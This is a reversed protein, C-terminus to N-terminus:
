VTTQALGCMRGKLWARLALLERQTATDLMREDRSAKHAAACIDFRKLSVSHNDYYVIAGVDLVPWDAEKKHRNKRLTSVFLSPFRPIDPISRFEKPKSKDGLCSLETMLKTAQIAIPRTAPKM